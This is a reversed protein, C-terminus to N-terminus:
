QLRTAPRILPLDFTAPFGSDPHQAPAGAQGMTRRLPSRLNELHVARQDLTHIAIDLWATRM